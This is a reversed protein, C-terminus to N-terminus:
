LLYVCNSMYTQGHINLEQCSFATFFHRFFDPYGTSIGKFFILAIRDSCPHESNLEDLCLEVNGTTCSIHGVMDREMRDLNRLKEQIWTQGMWLAVPLVVAFCWAVVLVAM